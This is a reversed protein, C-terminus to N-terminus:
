EETIDVEGRLGRMVSMNIDILVKSDAKGDLVKASHERTFEYLYFLKSRLEAPLENKEGAVDAALITWLKLNDHLAQAINSLQDTVGTQVHSLQRTVRAFIQYEIGRESGTSEINDVYPNKALAAGYM